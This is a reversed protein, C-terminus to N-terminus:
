SVLTWGAAARAQQVAALDLPGVNRVATRGNTTSEIRGDERITAITVSAGVMAFEHTGTTEFRMTITKM